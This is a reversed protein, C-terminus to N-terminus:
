ARGADDEYVALWNKRMDAFLEDMFKIRVAPPVENQEHLQTFAGALLYMTIDLHSSAGASMAVVAENIKEGALLAFKAEKAPLKPM